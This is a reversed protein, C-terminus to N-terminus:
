DEEETKPKQQEVWYDKIKKYFCDYGPKSYSPREEEILNYDSCFGKKETLDRADFTIMSDKPIYWYLYSGPLIDNDSSRV